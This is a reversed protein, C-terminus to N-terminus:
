DRYDSVYCNTKNKGIIQLKITDTMFNLKWEFYDKHVIVKEVIEEIIQENVGNYDFDLIKKISQKAKELRVEPAEITELKRELENIEIKYKEIKNSTRKQYRDYISTSVQNILYLDLVKYLKVNETEVLDSLIKIRKKIKEELKEDIKIGEMLIRKLENKNNSDRSINRFITEVMLKLKWEPLEKM